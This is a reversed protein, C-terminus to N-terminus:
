SGLGANRLCSIGHATLKFRQWGDREILRRKKLSRLYKALGYKSLGTLKRLEPYSGNGKNNFHLLLKAANIIATERVKNFGHSRLYARLRMVHSGTLPIFHQQLGTTHQTGNNNESLPKQVDTNGSNNEAIAISVDNLPMTKESLPKQVNTNGSNNEVIAISVDNPPMTKESLPKQVDNNGNINEAIAILPNGPRNTKEAVAVRAKLAENQELLVSIIQNLRAVESRLSAIEVDSM